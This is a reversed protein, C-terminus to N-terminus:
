RRRRGTSFFILLLYKGRVVHLHIGKALTRRLLLHARTYTTLPHLSVVFKVRTKSPLISIKQWIFWRSVARTDIFMDSQWTFTTWGGGTGYYVPSVGEEEKGGMWFTEESCSCLLETSQISSRGWFGYFDVLCKKRKKRKKFFQRLISNGHWQRLTCSVSLLFPQCFRSFSDVCAGKKKFTTKHKPM